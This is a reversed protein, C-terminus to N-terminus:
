PMPKCRLVFLKSLASEDFAGSAERIVVDVLEDPTLELDWDNLLLFPIAANAAVRKNGDIFSHNQCLHFLYAAVMEPISPHLFACGFTAMRCPWQPNLYRQIAFVSQAM